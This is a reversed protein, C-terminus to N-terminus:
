KCLYKRLIKLDEYTDLNFSQSKDMEFLLPSDCILRHTRFLFPVRTLYICGNRVMWNQHAQRYIGSSHLPHFPRLFKKNKRLYFVFHNIYTEEYCSIMSQSKKQSLFQLISKKIAATNRLPCTPQLLLVSHYKEGATGLTKLAHIVVDVTKSKDMALKKPRMFPVEAGCSRAIKAIECDETSVILRALSGGRLLDLGTDISWQILPQGALDVLNKRPIAKSGGRAPIIGLVSRM